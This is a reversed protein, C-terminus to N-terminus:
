YRPSVKKMGESGQAILNRGLGILLLQDDAYSLENLRKKIPGLEFVYPPLVM